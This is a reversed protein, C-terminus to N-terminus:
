REEADLSDRLGSCHSIKRRPWIFPRPFSIPEDVPYVRRSYTESAVVVGCTRGANKYSFAAFTFSFRIELVDVGDACDKLIVTLFLRSEGEFLGVIFIGIDVSEGRFGSLTKGSM